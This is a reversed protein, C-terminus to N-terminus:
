FLFVPGLVQVLPNHTRIRVFKPVWTSGVDRARLPTPQWKPEDSIVWLLRTLRLAGCQGGFFDTWLPQRRASKQPETNMLKDTDLGYLVTQAGLHTERLRSQDM